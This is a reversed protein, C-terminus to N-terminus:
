AAEPPKWIIQLETRRHVGFKRMINGVHFKVSRESLNHASGIEKNIKGSVVLPLINRERETLTAMALDVYTAREGGYRTMLVEVLETLEVRIVVLMAKRDKSIKWRVRPNGMVLFVTPPPATDTEQPV